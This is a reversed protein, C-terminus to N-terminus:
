KAQGKQCYKFFVDWLCTINGCNYFSGQQKYPIRNGPGFRTEQSGGSGGWGRGLRPGGAAWPSTSPQKQHTLGPPPRPLHSSNRNTKWPKNHGIPEPPWSPKYDKATSCLSLQPCISLTNWTKRWILFSITFMLFLIFLAQTGQNHANNLPSESASYPWAGPSPLLTNLTPNSETGSICFM